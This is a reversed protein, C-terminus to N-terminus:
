GPSDSNYTDLRTVREPKVFALLLPPNLIRTGTRISIIPELWLVIESGLGDTAVM